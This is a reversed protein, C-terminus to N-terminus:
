QRFHRVLGHSLQVIMRVLAPRVTGSLSKWRECLANVRNFAASFPGGEFSEVTCAAASIKEKEYSLRLFPFCSNIILPPSM